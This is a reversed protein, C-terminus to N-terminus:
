TLGNLYALIDESALVQNAAQADIAHQPMYAVAADSPLQAITHGGSAKVAKLGETGDTNAGSLLIAIASNGYCLAASQFAVDISPRSWAVKESADLALSGDKEFLLHYDGPAIYICGPLIPDKDEVEKICLSTKLMLLDTLTDDQSAKRHIVIIIPYAFDSRLGPIVEFLVDLSGASGGILIIHRLSNKGKAM